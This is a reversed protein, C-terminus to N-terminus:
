PPSLDLDLSPNNKLNNYREELEQYKKVLYDYSNKADYMSKDKWEAQFKHHNRECMLKQYDEWRVYDGGEMEILNPTCVQTTPDWELGLSYRNIM